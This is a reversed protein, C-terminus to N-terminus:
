TTPFAQEFMEDLTSTSQFLMARAWTFAWLAQVKLTAELEARQDREKWAEFKKELEGLHSPTPPGETLYATM